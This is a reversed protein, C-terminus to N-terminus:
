PNHPVVWQNDIEYRLGPFRRDPISHTRRYKRRRYFPYGNEQVMTTERCVKPFQKSCQMRGDGGEVMCLAGPNFEGCPGHIMTSSVIDFLKGDPDDEVSPFEASIIQDISEINRFRARDDPHLSLLLHLHPLGRKQYEIPYVSGAYRGFM